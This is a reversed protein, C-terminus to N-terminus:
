WVDEYEAARTKAVYPDVLARRGVYKTSTLGKELNIVPCKPPPPNDPVVEGETPSHVEEEDGDGVVVVEDSAVLARTVPEFPEAVPSRELDVVACRRKPSSIDFSGSGWM